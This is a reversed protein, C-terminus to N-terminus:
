AELSTKPQNLYLITKGKISSEFLRPHEKKYLELAEQNEFVPMAFSEHNDMHQQCFPVGIRNRGNSMFVFGTVGVSPQRCIICPKKRKKYPRKSDATTIAPKPEQLIVSM